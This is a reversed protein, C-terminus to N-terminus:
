FSAVGTRLNLPREPRRPRHCVLETEEESLRECCPWWRRLELIQCRQWGPASETPSQDVHKPEQWNQRQSQKRREHQVLLKTELTWTQQLDPVSDKFIRRQRQWTQRQGKPFVGLENAPLDMPQPNNHAAAQACQRNRGGVSGLDHTTIQIHTLSGDQVMRLAVGIRIVRKRTDTSMENSSPSDAVLLPRIPWWNRRRLELALTRTLLCQTDIIDTRTGVCSTELCGSGGPLWRELNTDFNNAKCLMVRMYYLQVSCAQDNAKVAANHFPTNHATRCTGHTTGLIALLCMCLKKQLSCEKRAMRSRRRLQGAERLSAHRDLIVRRDTAHSCQSADVRGRWRSPQTKGTNLQQRCVQKYRM